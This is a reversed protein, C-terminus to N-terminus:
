PTPPKTHPPVVGMSIIYKLAQEVSIDLPLIDKSAIMLFYGSTPNPTTPVYVSVHEGMKALYQKAGVFPQGTIFGITWSGKYPFEVLVAQRFATSSESLITDSVQKVSVYISKFVPVRVLLTEWMNILRKGFFNTAIIGTLLIVLLTLLAGLGPVDLGLQAEPRWAPPLLLLSKDMVGILGVIVWLTIFLPVLVILGTVFYTKIPKM